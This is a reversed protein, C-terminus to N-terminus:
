FLIEDWISEAKWRGDVRRLVVTLQYWEGHIGVSAQDISQRQPHELAYGFGAEGTDRDRRTKAIKQSAPRFCGRLNLSTLLEDPPDVIKTCMVTHAADCSPDIEAISVFSLRGRQSRIGALFDLAETLITVDDSDLLPSAFGRAEHRSGDQGAQMAGKASPADLLAAFAVAAVILALEKVV